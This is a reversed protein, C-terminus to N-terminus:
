SPQPEQVHFLRRFWNPGRTKKIWEDSVPTPAPPEDQLIENCLSVCENCIFVGPGAILRRAEDKTKGCFSCRM